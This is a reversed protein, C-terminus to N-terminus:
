KGTMPIEIWHDRECSSMELSHYMLNKNKTKTKPKRPEM